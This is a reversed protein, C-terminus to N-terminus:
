RHLELLYNQVRGSLQELFKPRRELPILDVGIKGCGRDLALWSRYSFYWKEGSIVDRVIIYDFFWSPRWGSHDHWINLRTLRGLSQSFTM